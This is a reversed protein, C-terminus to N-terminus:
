SMEGTAERLHQAVARVLMKPSFPKFVIEVIGLEERLKETDIEFAKATVM